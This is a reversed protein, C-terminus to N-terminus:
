QDKELLFLLIYVSLIYMYSLYTYLLKLGKRSKNVSEKRFVAAYVHDASRTRSRPDRTPEATTSPM